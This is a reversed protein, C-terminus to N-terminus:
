RKVVQKAFQLQGAHSGVLWYRGQAFSAMPISLESVGAPLHKEFMTHGTLDIVRLHIAPMEDFMKVHLSEVVPNPYFELEVTTTPDISSTPDYTRTAFVHNDCQIFKIDETLVTDSVTQGTIGDVLLLHSTFNDDNGVFVFTSSLQDYDASGVLFGIEFGELIPTTSVPTIAGSATDIEGWHFTTYLRQTMPDVQNSDREAYLGYLKNNNNDYALSAFTKSLTPAYLIDGSTADLYYLKTTNNADFGQFIYRHHNSNFCSALNVTGGVGPLYAVTDFSGNQMSVTIFYEKQASQDWILAYTTDSQLDYEMQKPASTGFQSNPVIPVSSISSSDTAVTYFVNQNADDIGWFLFHQRGHDFAKSGYAAAYSNPITLLPTVTTTLPDMVVLEFSNAPNAPDNPMTNRLGFLNLGQSFGSSVSALLCLILLYKKM